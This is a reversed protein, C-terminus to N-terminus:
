HGSGAAMSPTFELGVAEWDDGAGSSYDARKGRANILAVWSGADSTTLQGIVVPEVTAGSRPDMCFVAGNLVDLRATDTWDGWDIGVSSLTGGGDGDTIGVTLWSDYQATTDYAWFTPNTGGVSAGFPDPSQFAAPIAMPKAPVGREAGATETPAGFIAYVSRVDTSAFSLALQYTTHGAVGSTSIVSLEPRVAAAVVGDANPPGEDAHRTCAPMGSSSSWGDSGCVYKTATGSFGLTEDCTARCSEGVRVGRCQSTDVGGADGDPDPLPLCTNVASCDECDVLLTFGHGLYEDGHVKIYVTQAADSTFEILASRDHPDDRCYACRDLETTGDSDFLYLWTFTASGLRTQIRYDHGADVQMKYWVVDGYLGNEAHLTQAGWGASEPGDERRAFQGPFPAANPFVPCAQYRLDAIPPASITISKPNALRVARM